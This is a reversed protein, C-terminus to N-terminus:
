KARNYKRNIKILEKKAKECGELAKQYILNIRVNRESLSVKCWEKKEFSM